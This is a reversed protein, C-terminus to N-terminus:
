KNFIKRGFVGLGIFGAGLFIMLVPEAVPATPIYAGTFAFASLRSSTIGLIILVIILMFTLRKMDIGGQAKYTTPNFSAKTESKL